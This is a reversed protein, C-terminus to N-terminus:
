RYPGVREWADVRGNQFWVTGSRERIYDITPAYGLGYGGYGCGYRGRGYGRGYGYSGYLSTSYVPRLSAYDWREYPRGDKHGQGRRDPHGWALFVGNTPLGKAIQGRSVLEQQKKPLANYLAPNSAIRTQPTQVVCGSLLFAAGIAPALLTKIPTTM